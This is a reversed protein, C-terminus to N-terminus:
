RLLTKGEIYVQNRGNEKAIYLAKDAQDIVQSLTPTDKNGKYEAVGLSITFPIVIDNKEYRNQHITLLLRDALQETESLRSNPCLIIFEEGGYRTVIDRERVSIMLLSALHKLVEDGVLHGYTDNIKKFYDIDIAICSFSSGSEQCEQFIQEGNIMLYRRNYLKTLRCTVSLDELLEINGKVQSTMHNFADTLERFEKTFPNIKEETIQYDYNGQEIIRVGDIMHQIPEEIKRAYMLMLRVTIFGSLLICIISIFFTHLLPLLVNNVPIESILIWNNRNIVQSAGLM